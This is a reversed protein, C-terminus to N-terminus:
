ACPLAATDFRWYTGAAGQADNSPTEVYRQTPGGDQKPESKGESAANADPFLNERRRLPNPPKRYVESVVLTRM